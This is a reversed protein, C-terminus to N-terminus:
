CGRVCGSTLLDEDLLYRILRLKSERDLPSCNLCECFIRLSRVWREDERVWLEGVSGTLRMQGGDVDSSSLSTSGANGEVDVSVPSTALTTAPGIGFLQAKFALLFSCVICVRRTSARETTKDRSEPDFDIDM